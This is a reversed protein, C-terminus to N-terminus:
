KSEKEHIIVPYNSHSDNNWLLHTLGAGIGVIVLVLAGLGLGIYLFFRNTSISPRDDKTESM